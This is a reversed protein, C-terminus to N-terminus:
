YSPSTLIGPVLCSDPSTGIRPGSGNLLIHHNVSNTEHWGGTMVAERGTESGLNTRLCCGAAIYQPVQFYAKVFSFCLYSHLAHCLLRCTLDSNSMLGPFGAILRTLHLISFDLLNTKGYLPSLLHGSCPRFWTANTQFFHWLYNSAFLVGFAGPDFWVSSHLLFVTWGTSRPM